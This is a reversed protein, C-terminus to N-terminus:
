STVVHNVLYSEMYNRIVPILGPLEDKLPRVVPISLKDQLQKQYERLSTEDINEENLTIALTESGYTRILNIEEEIPPIHIKLQEMGDFYKRGPAHQLIVGKCNGSLIFESGCPGSPNQLSSQGEILILDPKSEQYCRLIQKEIEGGIFDNITADFIFGYKLGQMWGTQGTYIFETKIGNETCVKKLFNGTTRKGIVCDMGLIAIRPVDIKLSEGSWFHLNGLASPKRVDHLEAQYKKALQSFEPDDILHSHLGSVVSIGNEIASKIERRFTDPLLGGHLAVGIICYDPRVPLKELSETTNSYIPIDNSISDFLETIKQGHYIPDIVALIQFRDSGRILGHATKAHRDMLFGNTLIIAKGKIM